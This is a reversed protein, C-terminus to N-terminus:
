RPGRTPPRPPEARAVTLARVEAAGAALLVRACADLTAGTTRVDDVLVLTRNQVTHRTGRMRVLWSLAFTQHVNRQRQPASLGTQTPTWRVRRLASLVPVGLARAIVDAQNFGRQLRRVPHLPVPVAYDAGNLVDHGAGRAVNGLRRALSSHGGYKMRQVLVRLTGDYAGVTRVCTVSGPHTRGCDHCTAGSSVLIRWSPLPGGCVDCYPPLLVPVRDWCPQCAPGRTPADLADGYAVCSPALVM